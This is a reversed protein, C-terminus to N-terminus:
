GHGGCRLPRGGLGLRWRLKNESVSGTFRSGDINEIAVLRLFDDRRECFKVALEIRFQHPSCANGVFAGMGMRAALAPVVDFLREQCSAYDPGAWCTNVRFLGTLLEDTTEAEFLQRHSVRVLRGNARDQNVVGVACGTM